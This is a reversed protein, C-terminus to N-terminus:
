FVAFNGRWFSRVGENRLTKFVCDHVGNFKSALKGQKILENQNQLLLKVREIPAASTKSVAAASGSLVFSEVFGINKNNKAM